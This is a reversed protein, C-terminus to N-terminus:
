HYMGKLAKDIPTLCRWCVTAVARESVVVACTIWFQAEETTGFHAAVRGNCSDCRHPELDIRPFGAQGLREADQPSTLIHVEVHKSM